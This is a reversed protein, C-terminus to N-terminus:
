KALPVTEQAPTLKDQIAKAEEVLTVVKQEIEETKKENFARINGETVAKPERCIDYVAFIKLASGCRRALKILKSEVNWFAKKIDSENLM